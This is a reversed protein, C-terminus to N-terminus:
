AKINVTDINPYPTMGLVLLSLGYGNADAKAIAIFFGDKANFLNRLAGASTGM